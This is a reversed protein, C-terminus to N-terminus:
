ARHYTLRPPPPVQGERPLLRAGLGILATGVSWEALTFISPSHFGSEKFRRQEEAERLLDQQHMQVVQDMIGFSNTGFM